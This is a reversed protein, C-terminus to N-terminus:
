LQWAVSRMLQPHRARLKRIRRDARQDVVLLATRDAPYTTPTM